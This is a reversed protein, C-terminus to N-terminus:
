ELRTKDEMSKDRQTRGEDALNRANGNNISNHKQGLRRKEPDVATATAAAGHEKIYGTSM